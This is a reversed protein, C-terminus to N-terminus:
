PNQSRRTNYVRTSGNEENGNPQQEQLVTLDAVANSAGGGRSKVYSVRQLILSGGINTKPEPTTKTANEIAEDSNRSSCSSSEEIMKDDDHDSDAM